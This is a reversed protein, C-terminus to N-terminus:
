APPQDVGDHVIHGAIFTRAVGDACLAERAHAWPTALLCLDAAAGEEVRRTRALDRPDALFLALSEEPTLAERGGLAAGGRTRRDVAARMAAWPDPRGFPADSGGALTVGAGLFARLRYLHPWEEPPIDARYADGREAIFHPQAVVALELEAIQELLGDPTVSAHEIRDGPGSGAERLAALTFVLEVETVCHVAVARGRGHAARITAVMEDYDPLSPEHLHLKVPGLVVPDPLPLDGLELTGAMVIHQPLDGTRCADAFMAAEGPGNAPSIETLGTVGLRAFDQGVPRFDPPSGALADRMWRDADLLRGTWRGAVRELGAPPPLGSALLRDLGAANMVWMRGGRHQIRVPRHPAVADIWDRDIMGAVSEHYGIGRLWGEGPASLIQRLAGADTVEPPGCRVSARAAALAAVHAHHDHLGPLLCAGDADIIREGGDPTLLGIGAILGDRLRVDAIRGPALEARRILIPGAAGRQSM